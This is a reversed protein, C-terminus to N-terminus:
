YSTDMSPPIDRPQPNGCFPPVPMWRPMWPLRGAAWQVAVLAARGHRTWIWRSCHNTPAPRGPGLLLLLLLLLVVESCQV